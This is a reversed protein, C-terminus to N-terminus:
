QQAAAAEAPQVNGTPAPAPLSPAAGSASPPVAGAQAQPAMVGAPNQAANRAMLEGMVAQLLAKQRRQREHAIIHAVAQEEMAYDRRAPDDRTAAELRRRHDILHQMDDDLPNVDVEDGDLMMLWEQKPTKPTDPQPPEPIIAKFNREGYAEWIRNLLHWLAVANTQVIPNQLSLQYIELMTKKKAERSWFSTAFKIDFEFPHNREEATMLGFGKDVDFPADEGTVRFFVEEDAFERDLMWVFTVARGVDERIMSMDLSARTNGEQILMAQGSATQPANPRDSARGLSQDNVGTVLEAISKLVQQMFQGYELNARMEIAKVGEPDETPIAEGPRYEFTQPDFGSSPKFFLIPGVSFQGAKRFLMYNISSENQLDEVMEGLGPTWYSGDKVGGMDVFPNRKQMKPYLDRLDQVGIILQMEPLYTVVVERERDERKDLNNVGADSKGKLFRWRGYWRWVELSDRNGLLSQTDVGEAEDRDLREHDWLFDREQRQSAQNQIDRWNDKIGFVKGRREDDLLQQPRVRSRRCTWEFDDVTDVGEQAPVILESPWLTRLRPGDYALQEYDFTGDGNDYYALGGDELQKFNINEEADREWYFEQEYIIEAHGRGFLVSRFVWTSLAITAQMYEFFRWTMYAGVKPAMDEKVPTCPKAVIEADDGLLASMVRAWMGLTIWKLMPYQFAQEGRPGSTQQLSRWMRYYRRFRNNRADHNDKAARVNEEIHVQLRRTERDSLKIQRFTQASM